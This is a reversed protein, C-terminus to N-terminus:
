PKIPNGRADTDSPSIICLRDYGPHDNASGLDIALGGRDPVTAHCAMFTYNTTQSYNNPGVRILDTAEVSIKLKISGAVIKPLADVRIEHVQRYEFSPSGGGVGTSSMYGTYGTQMSFPMGDRTLIRPKSIVDGQEVKAARQYWAALAAPSLIWVRQGNNNTALPPGLGAQREALPTFDWIVAEVLIPRSPWFRNIIPSIPKELNSM